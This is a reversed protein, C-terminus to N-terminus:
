VSNSDLVADQTAIEEPQDINNQSKSKEAYQSQKRFLHFPLVFPSLITARLNRMLTHIDNEPCGSTEEWM